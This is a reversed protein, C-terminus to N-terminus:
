RRELEAVDILDVPRGIAAKYAILDPLPMVPVLVGLVPLRVSRSYDIDQDIWTKRAASYYRPRADSDGIEICAEGYDITVLALDWEQDRYREPGRVIRPGIADLLAGAQSLPAYIDIDVIPRRGGHAFAATGGGVQYPVAHVAFTHSIWELAARLAATRGPATM